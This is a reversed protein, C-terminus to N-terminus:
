SPLLFLANRRPSKCRSLEEGPESESTIREDSAGDGNIADELLKEAFLRVTESAADVNTVSRDLTYFLVESDPCDKETLNKNGKKSSSKGYRRHAALRPASRRTLITYRYYHRLPLLILANPEDIQEECCRM